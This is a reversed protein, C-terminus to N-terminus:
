LFSLRQQEDLIAGLRDPELPHPAIEDGVDRVLQARREGDHAAVHLRRQIRGSGQWRGQRAIQLLHMRLRHAHLPQHLIKQRQRLQLPRLRRRRFPDVDPLKQLRRGGLGSAHRRLPQRHLHIERRLGARDQAHAGLQLRGQAIEGEVRHAVRGRRAPHHDSRTRRFVTFPLEEHAIGADADRRLM